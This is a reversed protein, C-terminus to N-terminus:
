YYYRRLADILSGRSGFHANILDNTRQAVEQSSVLMTCPVNERGVLKLPNTYRQMVEAGTMFIRPLSQQPSPCHESTHYGVGFAPRCICTFPAIFPLAERNTFRIEVGQMYSEPQQFHNTIRDMIGTVAGTKTTGIILVQGNEIIQRHMEFLPIRVRTSMGHGRYDPDVYSSGMEWIQPVEESLGLRLRLSASLLLEFRTHGVALRPDFDADIAMESMGERYSQELDTYPASLTNRESRLGSEIMSFDVESVHRTNINHYEINM